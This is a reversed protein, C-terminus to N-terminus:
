LRQLYFTHTLQVRLLLGHWVSQKLLYQLDTGIGSLPRQWQWETLCPILMSLLNSRGNGASVASSFEMTFTVMIVGGFVMLVVSGDVRNKVNVNTMNKCFRDWYIKRTGSEYDTWLVIDSNKYTNNINLSFIYIYIYSDWTGFDM